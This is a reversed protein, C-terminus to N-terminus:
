GVANPVPVYARRGKVYRILGAKKASSIVRKEEPTPHRVVYRGKLRLTELIEDSIASWNTANFWAQKFRWDTAVTMPPIEQSEQLFALIQNVREAQGHITM